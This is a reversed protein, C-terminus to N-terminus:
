GRLAQERWRSAYEPLDGDWPEVREAQRQKAIEPFKLRAAGLAVGDALEIRLVPQNPRLAALAQPFVPDAAFRGEVLIPGSVAILDLSAHAMLALHLSGLAALEARSEVKGVISGKSNPFPGCDNAFSPRTMVGREILRAADALTSVSGISRGLIAEYERGGMFRVSPVARGEVDVNALTDRQADLQPINAAGSQMAVFWTGTSVLVFPADALVGIGRAANLAANSDHAGCLVECNRPLGTVEAIESRLTGLAEGARRLLGLRRDWGHRWALDSYRGTAPRWLDTHCGLSSVEAAREGCLRWAWYQPWLLIDARSALPYLREQWFLQAGLNLGQPLRPSFTEEFADREGDYQKAIDAPIENEYDLVPAALHEGAVLAATAGHAVPIIAGVTALKAFEALHFLLWEEIGAADLVLCGDVVSRANARSRVALVGGEPAILSLKTHTKGVDCVILANGM